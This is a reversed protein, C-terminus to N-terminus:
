ELIHISPTAADARKIADLQVIEKTVREVDLPSGSYRQMLRGQGDVLWLNTSHDDPRKADKKNNSDFLHLRDSLTEISKPKGTLLTWHSLNVGMRKAFAKLTRPKDHMPDLSVSIFQVSNRLEPTLKKQVQVLSQMQLPCVTSCQTYVFNFLTVKNELTEVQFQRNNQDILTLNEFNSYFSAPDTGAYSFVPHMAISAAFVLVLCLSQLQSLHHRFLKM